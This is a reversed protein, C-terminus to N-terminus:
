HLFSLHASRVYVSAECQDIVPASAFYCDSVDKRCGQKYGYRDLVPGASWLLQGRMLYVFLGRNKVNIFVYSFMTSVALGVIEDGGQQGPGPGFFVQTAPESTGVKM